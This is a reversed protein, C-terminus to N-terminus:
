GGLRKLFFFYEEEIGDFELPGNCQACNRKPAIQAGGTLDVEAPAILVRSSTHCTKCEYPAHFSIVPSGPLKTENGFFGAIMNAQEIIVESVEEFRVPIVPQITRMM